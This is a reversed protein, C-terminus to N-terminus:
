GRYCKVGENFVEAVLDYADALARYEVGRDVRITPRYGHAKWRNLMDDLDKFAAFERTLDNSLDRLKNWAEARSRLGTDEFRFIAINQLLQNGTWERVEETMAM